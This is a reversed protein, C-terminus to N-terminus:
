TGLLVVNAGSPVIKTSRERYSLLFDRDSRQLLLPPIMGNYVKSSASRHKPKYNIHTGVRCSHHPINLIYFSLPLSIFPPVAFQQPWHHPSSPPHAYSTKSWTTSEMSITAYQKSRIIKISHDSVLFSASMSTSTPASLFLKKWASFAPPTIPTTLHSPTRIPFDLLPSPPPETIYILTM